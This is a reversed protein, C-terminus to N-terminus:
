QAIPASRTWVPAKNGYKDIVEAKCYVRSWNNPLNRFETVWSNNYGSYSGDEFRSDTYNINGSCHVRVREMIDYRSDNIDLFVQIVDHGYVKIDLDSVELASASFSMGALLLFKYKM